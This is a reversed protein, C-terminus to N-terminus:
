GRPRAMPLFGKYEGYKTTIWVTPPFEPGTQMFSIDVREGNSSTFSTQGNIEGQFTKNIGYQYYSM